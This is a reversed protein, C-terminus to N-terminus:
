FRESPVVMELHRCIIFGDHTIIPELCYPKYKKEKADFVRLVFLMKEDKVEDLVCFDNDTKLVQYRLHQLNIERGHIYAQVVYM